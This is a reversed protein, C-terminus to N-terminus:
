PVRNEFHNRDPSIQPASRGSFHNLALRQAKIKKAFQGAMAPTSHGKAITKELVSQPTKVDGRLARDVSAPIHADTAEHVLLSANEAIDTLASPDCTDGLIVLKRGSDINERFVYGICPM